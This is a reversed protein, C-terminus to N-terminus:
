NKFKPNEWVALPTQMRQTRFTEPDMKVEYIELKKWGLEPRQDQVFQRSITDSNSFHVGNYEYNNCNTRILTYGAPKTFQAETSM